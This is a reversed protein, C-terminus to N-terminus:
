CARSLIVFESPFKEMIIQDRPTISFETPRKDLGNSHNSKECASVRTSDTSIRQILGSFFEPKNMEPETQDTGPSIKNSNYVIEVHNIELNNM